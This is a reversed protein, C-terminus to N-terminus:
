PTRKQRRARVDAARAKARHVIDALLSLDLNLERLQRDHGDLRDGHQALLKEAATMRALLPNGSPAM